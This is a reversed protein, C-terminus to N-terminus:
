SLLQTPIAPEGESLRRSAAPLEAWSAAHRAAAAKLGEAWSEMGSRAERLDNDWFFAADSLRAALVRQNGALITAGDDPTQINAVTVFGEIRGTSPNRASFFKQHEKMSTQLVEPPLALFRDEIVGMLPVPLEVLGALETPDGKDVLRQGLAVADAMEGASVMSVLAGDQLFADSDDHGFADRFYRSAAVFDNKAAAQRAALYPGARGPIPAVTTPRTDLAVDMDTALQAQRGPAAPAAQALPAPVPGARDKDNLAMAALAFVALAVLIELLSFGERPAVEAM